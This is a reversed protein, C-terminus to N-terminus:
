VATGPSTDVDCWPACNLDVNVARVERGVVKRIEYALSEDGAQGVQPMSPILTFPERSRLERGGEQHVCMMLPDRGAAAKVSYTLDALQQPSEINRAFLICNRVGRRILDRADASLATGTFGIGVMRAALRHLDRM